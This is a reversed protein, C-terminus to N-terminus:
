IDGVREDCGFGSVTRRSCTRCESASCSKQQNSQWDTSLMSSALPCRLQSSLYSVWVPSAFHSTHTSNVPVTFNELEDGDCKTEIAEKMRKLSDMLIEICKDIKENTM